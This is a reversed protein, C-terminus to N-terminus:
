IPTILNKFSGHLLAAISVAKSWQQNKELSFYSQPPRLETEPNLFHYIQSLPISSQYPCIDELEIAFIKSAKATYEDFEERTSGIETEYTDWINEPKDSVVRRITAQGLLANLPTSAYIAVSHGEWKRAFKRRIEVSKKNNIIKEANTPKISMVLANDISHGSTSFNNRLKPLKELVSNWVLNFPSSCRLEMDFLRYQTGAKTTDYFGFSEFFGRKKEWLSSPLTFHIEGAYRRVELAMLAFFVEGLNNDQIEDHIKLHCFKSHGGKKVVASVTPNDGMYGVYATRELTKIGPLVKNVLWKDIGPYMEENSLILEKFTRIHDTEKKSDAETLRVIRLDKKLFSPNAVM